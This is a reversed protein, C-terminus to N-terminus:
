LVEGWFWKAVKGTVDAEANTLLVLGIDKEPSYAIYPRYGDVVGGHYFLRHNDYQVMRWGRGYWTSVKKYQQWVPWRPKNAVKVAPSRLEQLAQPSFVKPQHGLMALLYKALDTASANIGAAPNVWYFNPKVQESRWGQGARHHPMAKNQTALFGAYGVSATQMKLPGLIHQQLLDPYPLGTSHLLAQELLGFLINQYSYCRGPTCSTKLLKFRPLIQEPTQNDELLNEFAHPMVGSAQSVVHDVTLAKTDRESGLQFGPVYHALPADLKLSGQQSALVTLGGTFTKSVSALRFVTDADVKDPKGVERVGYAGTFVIQGGQVVAYAGGPVKAKNLALRFEQDLGQLLETQNLQALAPTALLSLLGIVGARFVQKTM